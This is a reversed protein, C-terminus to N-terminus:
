AAHVAAHGSRILERHTLFEKELLRYAAEVPDQGDQLATSQSPALPAPNAAEEAGRAVAAAVRKESEEREQAYLM